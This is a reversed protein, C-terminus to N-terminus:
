TSREGPPGFVDTASCRRDRIALPSQNAPQLRAPFGGPLAHAIVQRMLNPLAENGLENLAVWRADAPAPTGAPVAGVYVALELPFHTFVHKVVGPVRRWAPAMTQRGRWS